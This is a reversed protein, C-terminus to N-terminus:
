LCNSTISYPSFEFDSHQEPDSSIVLDTEERVLAPLAEFAVGPLIDVDVEPWAKRFAEPVPFLWEFCAHCEIAIHLRRMKSSLM